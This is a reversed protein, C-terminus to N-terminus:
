AARRFKVGGPVNIFKRNPIYLGKEIEFDRRDHHNASLPDHFFPGGAGLGSLDNRRFLSGTTQPPMLAVTIEGVENNASQANGFAGPDETTNTAISRYACCIDGQSFASCSEATTYNTPATWGGATNWGQWGMGFAVVICNTTGTVVSPCNAACPNRSTRANNAIASANFWPNGSTHCGSWCTVSAEVYHSGTWSSAYSPASGTRRIWFLKVDSATSTLSYLSTWGSPASYSTYGTELVQWYFLIDNAAAGSPEAPTVSTAAAGGGLSKNRLAVAM